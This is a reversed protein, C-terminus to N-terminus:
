DFIEVSTSTERERMPGLRRPRLIFTTPRQDRPPPTSASAVDISTLRSLSVVSDVEMAVTVFRGNRQTRVDGGSFYQQKRAVRRRRVSM